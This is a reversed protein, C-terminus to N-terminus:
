LKIMIFVCTKSLGICYNNKVILLLKTRFIHVLRHLITTLDGNCVELEECDRLNLNVLLYYMEIVATKKKCKKKVWSRWKSRWYNQSLRWWLALNKLDFLELRLVLLYTFEVRKRVSSLLNVLRNQSIKLSIIV